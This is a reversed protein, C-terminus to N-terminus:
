GQFSSTRIPVVCPYFGREEAWDLFWKTRERNSQAEPDLSDWIAESLFVKCKKEPNEFYIRLIKETRELEEVPRPHLGDFVAGEVLIGDLTDLHKRGWDDAEEAEPSLVIRLSGRQFILFDSDQQRAWRAWLAMQEMIRERGMGLNLDGVVMGDFGQDLIRKLLSPIGEPELDAFRVSAVLIKGTARVDTLMSRSFYMRSADARRVPFFLLNMESHKLSKLLHSDMEPFCGWHGVVELRERVCVAEALREQAKRHLIGLLLFLLILLILGTIV